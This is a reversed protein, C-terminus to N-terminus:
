TRQLKRYIRIAFFIDHRFTIQEFKDESDYAEAAPLSNWM